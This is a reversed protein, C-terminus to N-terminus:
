RGSINISVAGEEKTNRWEIGEKELRGITEIHPHGYSNGKGCSIFGMEFRCLELLEQSNTYQSGHHAVKLLEYDKLTGEEKRSRLELILADEGNEEVDGTFLTDFEGYTVSLVMSYANVSDPIFGSDPHLCEIQLKGDIVFDGKKMYIVPIGQQNAQEALECYAEDQYATKLYPLVLTDIRIGNSAAAQGMLEKVGSTHDSDSHTVFVYDLKAIGKAKLFPIIQYQGTKQKNSSGGDILYSRGSDAELCFSDGQGVDIMTITLGTGPHITLLVTMIAIGFLILWGSIVEYFCAILILGTYFLIIQFISPKGAIWTNYPLREVMFCLIEYFRLIAVCPISLIWELIKNTTLSLIPLMTLGCLLLITMIPIIILNLLISYLPLEFYASLLIPMSTFSISFSILVTNIIPIKSPLHHLFVPSVLGIALIASFSLQFGTHFVYLPQELIICVAAMAMATIMDYTRMTVEALLHIAFMFIARYASTGMGIMIGYCYMVTVSGAAAAALPIRMKRLLRYLGMGIISIHLGSIALIHAIGNRQYLAKTDLDLETKNGLLMAKMVSSDKPLFVSDYVAELRKRLQYLGENLKLYTTSEAQLEGRKMQCYLRQTRYYSYKNFEGYNTAARFSELKGKVKIYSGLKPEKTDELYCLIGEPEFTGTDKAETQRSDSPQEPQNHYTIQSLHVIWTDEKKEKQEVRGTVVVSEGEKEGLSFVPAKFLILLVMVVVVFALCALCLPRRM